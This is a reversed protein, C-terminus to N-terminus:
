RIPGSSTSWTIKQRSFSMDTSAPTRGSPLIESGINFSTGAAFNNDSPGAGTAAFVLDDGAAPAIDNQWNLANSWLDDAGGGDWVMQALLSRDELKELLLRRKRQRAQEQRRLHTRSVHRRSCRESFRLPWRDM